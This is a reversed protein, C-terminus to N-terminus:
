QLIDVIWVLHYIKSLPNKRSQYSSIRLPGDNGRNKGKLNEDVVTEINKYNNLINEYSWNSPWYQFDYPSGRVFVCQNHSSCGGLMKARSIPLVRKKLGDQPVSEYNWDIKVVADPPMLLSERFDKVFIYDNTGGAELVVIKDYKLTKALKAALVSGSSGSGVIVYDAFSRNPDQKEM